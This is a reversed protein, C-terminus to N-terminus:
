LGVVDSLWRSFLRRALPVSEAEVARIQSLLEAPAGKGALQELERVYEPIEMWEGALKSDVELHFQLGYASGLVYAQQEYLESGALRMAGEPLEYTDGHWQLTSFTAPMGGFVPDAAAAATMHVPLVGLEPAPGTTVKAGLSAALLQAGLCVGWFPKGARVAEGILDREGALWPHAEDECAGMAGGMAVIGAFDRWDPLEQGDCVLVRRLPVGRERLEDEYVGPPECGAHQLVLITPELADSTTAPGAAPEVVLDMLLADNWGGSSNREYARLVGIPEFGVAAYCRIARQNEANPDVTFRHHGRSRFHEVALRLARRGYGGGHLSSDLAIDFAVSPFWEYSEEHHELWGAAAGDVEIVWGSERQYDAVPWWRRVEPQAFLSELVAEDDPGFPRLHLDRERM